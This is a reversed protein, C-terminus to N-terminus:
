HIKNDDYFWTVIMVLDTDYEGQGMVIHQEGM